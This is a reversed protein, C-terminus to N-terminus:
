LIQLINALLDKEKGKYMETKPLVAICKLMYPVNTNGPTYWYMPLDFLRKVSDVVDIGAAEMSFTRKSPNRCYEQGLKFNCKKGPCGMCYGTSLFGGGTKDALAHGLKVLFRSVIGDQSKWHIATNRSAAVKSTKFVSWFRCYILWVPDAKDAIDLMKPARPPCGGALGYNKCGTKCLGRVTEPDYTLDEIHCATLGVELPYINNNQTRYHYWIVDKSIQIATKIM